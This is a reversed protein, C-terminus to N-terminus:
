KSEMPNSKRFSLESTLLVARFIEVIEHNLSTDSRGDSRNRLMVLENKLIIHAQAPRSLARGGRHLTLSRKPDRELAMEAYPTTWLRVIDLMLPPMLGLAYGPRSMADMKGGFGAWVEDWPWVYVGSPKQGFLPTSLYRKVSGLAVGSEAALGESTFCLGKGSLLRQCIDTVFRESASM